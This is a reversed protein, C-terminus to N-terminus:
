NGTRFECMKNCKAYDDKVATPNIEGISVKAMSNKPYPEICDICTLNIILNNEVVSAIEIEVEFSSSLIIKEIVGYFYITDSITSVTLSKGV